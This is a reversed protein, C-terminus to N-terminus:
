AGVERMRRRALALEHPPTRQTKKIFGHLVFIEGKVMCFLLRAIGSPLVSRVEWIGGGLSRCLPMGLPWNEQVRLLDLGIARREVRDRQRLWDLVPTRGTATKYFVVPIPKPETM